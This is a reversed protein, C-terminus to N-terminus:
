AESKGDHLCFTCLPQAVFELHVTGTQLKRIKVALAISFITLLVTLGGLILCMINAM